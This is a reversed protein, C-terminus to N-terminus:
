ESAASAAPESAPGGQAPVEAAARNDGSSDATAPESSQMGSLEAHLKLYATVERPELGTLEAVRGPGVADALKAVGAATAERADEETALLKFVTDAADRERQQQKRLAARLDQVKNNRASAM